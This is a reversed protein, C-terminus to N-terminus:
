IASVQSVYTYNTMRLDTPAWTPGPQGTNRIQILVLQVPYPYFYGRVLAMGREKRGNPFGLMPDFTPPSRHDVEMTHPYRELSWLSGMTKDKLSRATTTSSGQGELPFWRYLKQSACYFIFIFSKM